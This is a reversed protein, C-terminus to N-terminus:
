FPDHIIYALVRQFVGAVTESTYNSHIESYKIRTSLHILSIKYEFGTGGEIAPLQQVDM